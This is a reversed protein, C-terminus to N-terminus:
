VRGARFLGLGARQPLSRVHRRCLGGAGTQGDYEVCYWPANSRDTVTVEAGRPLCDVVRFNTGPGERMNVENGTVVATEAWASAGMMSAILLACLLTRFPKKGM